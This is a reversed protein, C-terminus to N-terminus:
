RNKRANGWFAVMVLVVALGIGIIMGTWTNNGSGQEFNPAEDASDIPIETPPGVDSTILFEPEETPTSSPTDTPLLEVISIGVELDRETYAMFHTGEINNEDGIRNRSDVLVTGSYLVVLYGSPTIATSLSNIAIIGPEALRVGEDVSWNVGNWIRHELGIEGTNYTVALVLHLNGASDVDLDVAGLLQPSSIMETNSWSTGNDLSFQHYVISDNSFTDLGNWIRHILDGNGTVIRSWSVNQEAVDAPESWTMGDDTSQSYHLSIPGRGGPLSFRTFLVHLTGDETVTLEPQDVMDWGYEVANFIQKPDSWTNGSDDSSVLYVGRAENFPVAFVVYLKDQRFTRIVPSSGITLQDTLRKPLTWDSSRYAQNAAAWSFYVEGSDGGSWVVFLRNELDVDAAPNWASGELSDLVISPNFWREGDWLLNYISSINAGPAALNNTQSWFVNLQDGASTIIIPNRFVDQNRTLTNPPGWKAPGPYWKAVDGLERQTLWIDKGEGSDCGVFFLVAAPVFYSYHQCELKVINLTEPDEFGSIIPQQQPNSWQTGNWALLYIRDLYAVRLLFLDDGAPVFDVDIPCGSYEEMIQRRESWSNGGDGSWRYYLSCNGGIGRRLWVVLAQEEAAEVRLNYPITNADAVDPGDVMIPEDWSRGGNLSRILSIQKRVQNDWGVYVWTGEGLEASGMDISANAPALSRFYSSQFLVQATSWSAGNDSSSRYFVGAPIDDVEDNRLYALQIAGQQDIDVVFKVVQGAMLRASEWASSLSLQDANARSLFLDGSDDIWFAHVRNNTGLILTPAFPDFPPDVRVADNWTEGDGSRYYYGAYQDLWLVHIIGAEDVVMVPSTTGGSQSLNVPPSWSDGTTQARVTNAPAFLIVVFALWILIPGLYRFNSLSTISKNQM